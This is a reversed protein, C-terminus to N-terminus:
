SMKKGKNSRFPSLLSFSRSSKEPTTTPPTEDRSILNKLTHVENPSGNKGIQNAKPGDISNRGAAPPSDHNDHNKKGFKLLRKLGKSSEKVQPKEILEPIKELTSNRSDSVRSRFTEMGISASDFSASPAKSDESSQTSSDELSSVRAHYNKETIHISSSKTPQKEMDNMTVKSSGPQVHPKNDSTETDISVSTHVAVYSPVTETKERVNDNAYQRKPIRTKEKAKGDNSNPACPKERELVVVTKEIIPNNEEDDLPSIEFEIKKLLTGELNLSSKSVNPKLTREKVSSGTQVIDNAKSTGIRLEPLTTTKSKDHNVIASIKRIDTENAAKTISTKRAGRPKVSVSSSHRITSMKPESLRRIRAMSAKNDTTGDGKEQKSEPLSPASRSLKNTNLRSIKQAKSSDNSGVSATRIPFRQFPSSSNPESDSFKSGKYSSPSLKVPIQKKTQQPPTSLKTTMSNSRAAIRRQREMKLADLRKKEEEEKEKKMKQLDVKYNRLREARARAEDLPSLKNTKGRRIPGPTKKLDSINATPKSKLDKDLMKSKPKLGKNKKDQLAGGGTQAQMECDFAHDYDMAGKEAGREPMLSLENPQYNSNNEEKKHVKPFESDMDIANRELNGSDNVRVVYSDDNMDHFLKRELKQSSYGFENVFDGNGGRRYGIRGDIELSQMADVSRGNVSQGSSRSLLFGDNPSRPMHTLGNSIRQMDLADRGGQAEHMNRETFDIPDNGVVHKKRRVQDFKDQDVAHRDEDVGRLLCKQFALWQGGDADKGSDTVEKDSLNLRKFSKDSSGRRKSAKVSEKVEKEEDTESSYDSSSGCGSSRETKTIYNINRIVVMGSRHRGSRGAKKRREGTLSGEREMAMEDQTESETLQGNNMSHMVHGVNPSANLRSDEMPSSVPQMLPINGPYTQYYPIGQVPYPQFMPLAGPPSHVPWSSFGNIPFHGQVNDQYGPTPQRDSNTKGNSESDLETHSTAVMNSVVIGSANIASSDARNPTVKAAEIELWHGSEHKIKWISIFNRCADMLRSAEFCEAFSMLAPMYDIDFGAAVARAFAMGQEKQLASKRTELVKLLQVKSNGESKTSGNTHLPQTDSKYLVIARDENTDQQNKRGTREFNGEINEVHKIQNEEVFSMGVSNNGQIAIAEEIQAIESEVTYVRELIEPTSVFRVFREITGKTFWSADTDLKPVLVISYGGKAIQDQAAKLHSLFPNLLGSAVKEKKGNVTIVLDFRTRTPTLQFMVSDLRTSSNM